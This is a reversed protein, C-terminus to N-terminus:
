TYSFVSVDTVYFFTLHRVSRCIVIDCCYCIKILFVYFEREWGVGIRSIFTNCSNRSISNGKGGVGTPIFFTYFLRRLIYVSLRENLPFFRHRLPRNQRTVNGRKM